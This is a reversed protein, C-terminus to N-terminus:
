ITKIYCYVNRKCCSFLTSRTLFYLNCIYVIEIKYPFESSFSTMTSESGLIANDQLNINFGTRQEDMM